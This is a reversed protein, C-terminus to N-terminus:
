ASVQAMAPALPLRISVVLGHDPAPRNEATVSGGMAEMLGRTISLGLGTGPQAVDPARYFKEFIRELCAADVGAGQDTVCVVATDDERRIAVRVESGAPSYRMANEVVNGLAQEFLVPDGVAEFGASKPRSTLPRRHALGHRHLTRDIVEGVDFGIRQPSITGSELKTMNLLNAVFANLREAEEQITATLDNRTVSDFSEGFDHLSSASAMIAALPTRLDHSISSLLANRLEETKARAEASAKAAALRARAIAAAASDALITVLSREDAGLPRRAETKWAAVGLPQGDAFLPRLTWGASFAMTSDGPKAIQALARVDRLLGIPIPLDEPSKFVDGGSLVLAPGRVASGLHHALRRRILTEDETASFDRTANVLSATAQARAEARAAADRIRGTLSGTLMAAVFFVILILLDEPTGFSVSFRPEVLYFNYVAFALLAAFYAPGSGLWYATLLVGTLFVGSLRNSQTLRYLVEAVGTSAAVIAVAAGYRWLERLRQLV